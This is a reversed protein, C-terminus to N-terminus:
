VTNLIWAQPLAEVTKEHCSSIKIKAQIQSVVNYTGLACFIGNWNIYQIIYLNLKGLTFAPRIDFLVRVIHPWICTHYILERTQYQLKM